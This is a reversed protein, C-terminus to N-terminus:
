PEEEGTEYEEIMAQAEIKLSQDYEGSIIEDLIDRGVMNYLAILANKRVEEHLDELMKKILGYAREDESEMLAEIANIRILHSEDCLAHELANFVRDSSLNLKGLAEIIREKLFTFKDVFGKKTELISVLPDVARADGLMGLAVAASERVYVSKEDEDQVVNILPAVAYKDGIRGLADACALRVKYNEEKDNLCYLLSTVASTDKLNAIVKACMVRVGDSNKKDFLLDLLSSLSSKDRYKDVCRILYMLINPSKAVTLFKNYIAVLNKGDYISELNDINKILIDEETDETLRCEAVVADLDLEIKKDM